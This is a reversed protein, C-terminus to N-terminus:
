VCDSIFKRMGLSLKSALCQKSKEDFFIQVGMWFTKTRPQNLNYWKKGHGDIDLKQLDLRIFICVHVLYVILTCIYTQTPKKM